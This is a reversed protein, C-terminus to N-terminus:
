KQAKRARDYARRAEKEEIMGEYWRELEVKTLLMSLREAYRTPEEAVSSMWAHETGAIFDAAELSRLGKPVSAFGALRHAHKAPKRKGTMAAVRQYTTAAGAAWPGDEVIISLRHYPDIRLLQESTMFMLYRLCLGYDSDAHFGKIGAMRKKVDAHAASEVGISIRFLTNREIIREQREIFRRRKFDSWGKFPGDRDQFVSWHYPVGPGLLRDWAADLKDWNADTSVAGGIVTYRSRGDTGCEDLRTSFLALVDGKASARGFLTRLYASFYPPM